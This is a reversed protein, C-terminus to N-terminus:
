ATRRRRRPEAKRRTTDKLSMRLTELLLGPRTAAPRTPREIEIAEGRAKRELFARLRRDYEDHYEEPRFEGATAAVLREAAALEPTDAEIEALDLREVPVVESGYRMTTVSLAAGSVSLAALYPRRRMTWRCVGVRGADSLATALTAYGADDGDPSLYYARDFYRPDIEEARVFEAVEMVRELAPELSEIEEDSLIVYQGEEVEFGKLIHERPVAKEEVPCVMEQRLRVRDRDHLLHMEVRTEHVASHLKVPLSETGFVLM